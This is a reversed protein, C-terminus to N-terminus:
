AGAAVRTKRSKEWEAHEADGWHCVFLLYGDPDRLSIEGSPMYDPRNIPPVDVGDALLKERLAPLDPTYLCFPVSRSADVEHEALLFMLAGSECHMRAWGIQGCEGMKDVLEFGLQEYFRISNEISKVHLMPTLYAAKPTM